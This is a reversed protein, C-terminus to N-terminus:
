QNEKCVELAKELPIGELDLIEKGDKLVELNYLGDGGPELEIGHHNRSRVIKLAAFAQDENPLYYFIQANEFLRRPLKVLQFYAQDLNLQFSSEVEIFVNDDPFAMKLALQANKNLAWNLDENKFGKEAFKMEVIKGDSFRMFSGEMRKGFTVRGSTKSEDSFEVKHSWCDECREKTEFGNIGQQYYHQFFDGDIIEIKKGDFPKENKFFLTDRGNRNISIIKQTKGNEFFDIRIEKAANKVFMGDFPQGEKYEKNRNYINQKGEKKGKKYSTVLYTPANSFYGRRAIYREAKEFFIGEYAKNNKYIGKGIVEEEKKYIVEGELIGNKYTHLVQNVENGFSVEKKEIGNKKGNKYNTKALHHWVTGDIPKGNKYICFTSDESYNDFFIIKGDLSDQVYYGSKNKIKFAGNKKGNKYTYMENYSFQVGDFPAEEKIKL